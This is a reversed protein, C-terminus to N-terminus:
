GHPKRAACSPLPASSLPSRKAALYEMGVWWAGPRGRERWVGFAWPGDTRDLVTSWSAFQGLGPPGFPGALGVAWSRFCPSQAILDGGPTFVIAASDVGGTLGARLWSFGLPGRGRGLRGDASVRFVIEIWAVSTPGCLWSRRRGVGKGAGVPGLVAAVPAALGADLHACRLGHLVCVGVGQGLPASSEGSAAVVSSEAVAM